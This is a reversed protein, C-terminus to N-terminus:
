ALYPVGSASPLRALFQAFARGYQNLYATGAPCRAVYQEAAADFFDRGVLREVAPYVMRLTAALTSRCTNRYIRLRQAASFGEELIHRGVDQADETLLAASFSRQLELLAPMAFTRMWSRRRRARKRSCCPSPRYM